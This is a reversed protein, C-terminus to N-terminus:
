AELADYLAAWFDAEIAFSAESALLQTCLVAVLDDEPDNLWVTGFGGSWGYGKPGRSPPAPPQLISLGFGWGRDGLIIGASARQAASLQDTTMEAILGPSVLREGGHSGRNLIMGAFALYDGVTSILGGGGDPFAPPQTWTGGDDFPELGGDRYQYCSPLRTNAGEVPVTFGTENMGLPDFIANRYFSELPQKTVRAILVGLIMSGTSYRWQTGPQDMLPLTGMRRMWEDPGLSTRPFPPGASRLGLEEEVELVPYGGAPALIMGFGARFTLLDRVTIPREAPVTDDVPGDVRRLVQRNALEPLHHDVPEDLSLLGQDVLILTAIATIPRTMSTIRFLADRPMVPGDLAVRGVAHVESRDARAIGFVAGPLRGADVHRALADAVRQVGSQRFGGTM